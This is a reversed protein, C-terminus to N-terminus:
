ESDDGGLRARQQYLAAMVPKRPGLDAEVRVWADITEEDQIGRIRSFATQDLDHLYRAPDEGIKDEISPYTPRDATQGPRRSSATM